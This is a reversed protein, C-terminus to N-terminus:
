RDMIQAVHFLAALTKSDRITGQRVWAFARPLSLWHVEIVEHAEAAPCVPILERALFLYIVEDCFGPTTLISGLPTWVEARLGAEEELERKVAVLPDEGPNLKGAPIEWIWGGAAHRYQRLLCLRLTEDLAVVAAGGPHRVVELEITHGGPLTVSEIGLDV